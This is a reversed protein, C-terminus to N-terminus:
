LLHTLIYAADPLKLLEIEAYWEKGSKEGRVRARGTYRFLIDSHTYFRAEDGVDLCEFEIATAHIIRNCADRADLDRQKGDVTITGVTPMKNQVEDFTQPAHWDMGARFAIAFQLLIRGLETEYNCGFIIGFFRGDNEKAWRGPIDRGYGLLVVLDFAIKILSDSLIQSDFHDIGKAWFNSM